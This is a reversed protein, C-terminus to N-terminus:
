VWALKSKTCEYNFAITAQLWKTPRALLWIKDEASSDFIANLYAPLKGVSPDNAKVFLTISM